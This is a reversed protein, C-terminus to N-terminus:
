QVLCSERIQFCIIIKLPGNNKSLKM